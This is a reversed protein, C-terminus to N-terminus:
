GVRVMTGVTVVIHGTLARTMEASRHKERSLHCVPCNMQDLDQALIVADLDSLDSLMDETLILTPKGGLETIVTERSEKTAMDEDLIFLNAKNSAEPQLYDMVERGHGFDPDLGAENICAEIETYETAYQTAQIHESIDTGVAACGTLEILKEVGWGYGAGVVIVRDETTIDLLKVLTLWPAQTIEQMVARHYHLRVPSRVANGNEDPIRLRISYKTDYDEKTYGTM